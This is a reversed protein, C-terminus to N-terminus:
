FPTKADYEPRELLFDVYPIGRGGVGLFHHPVLLGEVERYDAYDGSWPRLEPRGAGTDFYREAFFGRPLCDGGFEFIGSVERGNLRLTARASSADVGAWTAYRDDLFATPLLVLDSLLRLLSGQDLEPGSRDALTISSEFSVFMGGVGNVCRDRADVWVGPAARLRGWWLFGPPDAADYQEGRIPQWPGDLKTRFRGGHRFRLTAVATRRVGLAKALYARVPAPLRELRTRDIAHPGTPAQWLQRTERAVRRSFRLSNVSAALGILGAVSVV